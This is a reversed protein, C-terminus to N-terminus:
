RRLHRVMVNPAVDVPGHATLRIRGDSLVFGLFPPEGSSRHRDVKELFRQRAADSGFVVEALMQWYGDQVVGIDDEHMPVRTGDARLAEIRPRHLVTGEHWNETYMTFGVFPWSRGYGLYGALLQLLVVMVLATRGTALRARQWFSPPVGTAAGRLAFAWVLLAILGVASMLFRTDFAAPVPVEVEYEAVVVRRLDRDLAHVEVTHWGPRLGQVTSGAMPLLLHHHRRRHRLSAGGLGEVQLGLDIEGAPSALKSKPGADGVLRPALGRDPQYAFVGTATELLIRGGGGDAVRRFPPAPLGDAATFTRGFGFRIDVVGFDTDTCMWLRGMADAHVSRPTGRPVGDRLDPADLVLHGLDLVFLGHEAAAVVTGLPHRAFEAVSGAGAAATCPLERPQNGGLMVVAGDRLEISVGPALEITRLVPPLELGDQRVFAPAQAPMLGAVWTAVLWARLWVSM